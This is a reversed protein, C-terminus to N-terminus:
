VMNIAARLQDDNVAIYRSTTALDKHRAITSIVKISIAKNALHTILTRRPTHSTCDKLGCEQFTRIMLKTMTNASFARRRESRFLPASDEAHGCCKDLYHQMDKQVKQSLFVRGFSHGKTSEPELLFETAVKGDKQRLHGVKIAALECARMGTAFALQFIARDRDGDRHTAAHTIVQKIERDSLTRAQKM